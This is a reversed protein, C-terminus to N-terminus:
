FRRLLILGGSLITCVQVQDKQTSHTQRRTTRGNNGWVQKVACVRIAFKLKLANQIQAKQRKFHMATQTCNSSLIDARRLHFAPNCPTSKGDKTQLDCVFFKFVNIMFFIMKNADNAMMAVPPIKYATLLLLFADQQADFSFQQV